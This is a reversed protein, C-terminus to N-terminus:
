SGFVTTNLFDNRFKGNPDTERCLNKFDEMKAYSKALQDASFNFLKAWHPRISFPALTEQVLPILEKEVEPDQKWTTHIAVSNRQYCPSLWYEDAKITRIESIFLHPSIKEHLSEMAMMAEYGKELPLFFESQLEKGTSPKFGMKFHPLREYWLGPKDMQDTCTEASQTEVPHLNQTALSAGYLDGKSDPDTSLKKIWVENVNKNKWDTFFSVSYGMSMVQQFNKELAAIPLNRYVVQKMNFSPLLELTVKTVIGLAGLGVVAGYFKVPDKAKDFTVLEGSATVLEIASVASSLNGNSIGSGHTATAIAGGVSIHPLSALNHLALGNEQLYPALQGYTIGAEVTVTRKEKDLSIIKQLERSSVLHQDSDAIKSFSHRTGLARVKTFKKVLQQVELINKPYHVDTTSYELNEAWNKLHPVAEQAPENNCSIWHGAAVGTALMGASQLFNRRNM